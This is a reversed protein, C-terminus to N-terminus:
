VQGQVNSEEMLQNNHSAKSDTDGVEDRFTLAHFWKAAAEPCSELVQQFHRDRCLASFRAFLPQIEQREFDRLLSTELAAWLRCAAMAAERSARKRPRGSLYWAGVGLGQARIQGSDLQSRIASRDLSDLGDDEDLDHGDEVDLGLEVDGGSRPSLPEPEPELLEGLLHALWKLAARPRHELVWRLDEDALLQRVHDFAAPGEELHGELASWVSALAVIDVAADPAPPPLQLLEELSDRVPVAEGGSLEHLNMPTISNGLEGLPVNKRGDSNSTMAEGKLHIHTTM